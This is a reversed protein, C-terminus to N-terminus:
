QINGCAVSKSPTSKSEGLNFSLQDGQFLSATAAPIVTESKGHVVETLPYKVKAASNDCRGLNISFPMPGSV